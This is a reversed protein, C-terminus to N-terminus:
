HTISSEPPADPERQLIYRYIERYFARGAHTVTKIDYHQDKLNQRMWVEDERAMVVVPNQGTLIKRSRLNRAQFGFFPHCFLPSFDGQPWGCDYSGPLDGLSTQLEQFVKQSQYEAFNTQGQSQDTQILQVVSSYILLGMMLTTLVKGKPLLRIGIFVFAYIFFFVGYTDAGGPHTSLFSGFFVIGLSGLFLSSLAKSLPLLQHRHVTLIMLGVSGLVFMGLGAERVTQYRNYLLSFYDIETLLFQPNSLRRLVFEQTTHADDAGSLSKAYFFAVVGVIVGLCSMIAKLNLAKNKLSIWIEIILVAVVFALASELWLFGLLSFLFFLWWNKRQYAILSLFIWVYCGLQNLFLISQVQLMPLSLAGLTAFFAQPRSTERVLFLYFLALAMTSFFLCFHRVSVMTNGFVESWCYYLLNMLGPHGYFAGGNGNWPLFYSFGDMDLVFKLKYYEDMGGVLVGSHFYSTLAFFSVVVISAAIDWVITSRNSFFGESM